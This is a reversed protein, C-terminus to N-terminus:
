LRWGGLAAASRAALLAVVDSTAAEAEAAPSRALAAFLHAAKITSGSHLQAVLTSLAPVAPLPAPAPVAAPAPAPAIRYTAPGSSTSSAAASAAAAAPVAAFAAAIGATPKGAVFNTAALSLKVVTVPLTFRNTMLRPVVGFAITAPPDTLSLQPLEHGMFDVQKSAIAAAAASTTAAAPLAGPHAGSLNRAHSGSGSGSVDGMEGDTDADQDAAAVAAASDAPADTVVAVAPGRPTGELRTFSTAAALSPLLASPATVTVPQAVAHGALVGNWAWGDARCAAAAATKYLRHAAQTLASIRGEVAASTVLCDAPLPGSRSTTQGAGRKLEAASKMWSVQPMTARQSALAAAAAPSLVRVRQSPNTYPWSVIGGEYIQEVVQGNLAVGSGSAAEPVAEGFAGVEAATSTYMQTTFTLTTPYRSHEAADEDIRELLDAALVRMVAAFRHPAWPPIPNTYTALTSSDAGTTTSAAQGAGEGSSAAPLILPSLACQTQISKPPGTAVVVSDDIGRCADYLLGAKDGLWAQLTALPQLRAGAATTVGHEACAAAINGGCGPLDEISIEALLAEAATDDLVRIGHPKARKSALKAMLKNHAIGASCKYGTDREVAAQIRRAVATAADLLSGAQSSDSSSAAAATVDLFLEDMGRREIVIGSPHAVAAAAAAAQICWMIAASAHRYDGYTAKGGVTRVHLLKVQPWRSRIEAPLTHKKIGMARAAYSISITDQHQMVAIPVDESLGHRKREVQVFFEDMDVHVM